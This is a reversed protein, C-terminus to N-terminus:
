RTTPVTITVINGPTPVGYQAGGVDAWVDYARLHTWQEGDDSYLLDFLRPCQQALNYNEPRVKFEISTITRAEGFDWQFTGGDYVGAYADNALNSVPDSTQKYGSWGTPIVQASGNFMHLYSIVNANSGDSAGCAHCNAMKWYRHAGVEVSGGGSSSVTGAKWKKVSGDYIFIQGDTPEATLDVDTLESLATVGVSTEGSSSYVNYVTDNGPASSNTFTKVAIWSAGDLSQRELVFTKWNTGGVVRIQRVVISAAFEYGVWQPLDSSGSGWLTGANTSGDFANKAASVNDNYESSFVVTGGSATQSVGVTERFEIEVVEPRGANFLETVKLRWGSYAVQASGNSFTAPVWKHLERSYMFLQGDEPEEPEHVDSLQSLATVGVSGGGSSLTTFTGAVFAWKWSDAAFYVCEFALKASTHPQVTVTKGTVSNETDYYTKDFTVDCATDSKNILLFRVRDGIEGFSLVGSKMIGAINLAFGELNVAYTHGYYAIDPAFSTSVPYATGGEAGIESNLVCSFAADAYGKSDSTIEYVTRPNQVIAIDGVSFATNVDGTLERYTAYSHVQM